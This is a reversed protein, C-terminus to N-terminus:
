GRNITFLEEVLSFLLFHGPYSRKLHQYTFHQVPETMSTKSTRKTPKIEKHASTYSESFESELLRKIQTFTNPSIKIHNNIEYRTKGAAIAQAILIRRGIQIREKKTLLQTISDRETNARDFAELALATITEEYEM